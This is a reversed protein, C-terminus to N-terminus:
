PPSPCSPALLNFINIQMETESFFRSKYKPQPCQLVLLNFGSRSEFLNMIPQTCRAVCAYIKARSILGYKLKSFGCLFVVEMLWHLFFTHSVRAIQVLASEFGGLSDLFRQLFLIADQLIQLRMDRGYTGHKWLPNASSSDGFFLTVILSWGM